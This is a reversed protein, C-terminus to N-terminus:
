MRAFEVFGFLCDHDNGRLGNLKIALAGLHLGVLFAHQEHKEQQALWARAEHVSCRLRDERLCRSSNERDQGADDAAVGSLTEEVDGHLIARWARERDLKQFAWVNVLAYAGQNEIGVAWRTAAVHGRVFTIQCQPEADRDVAGIRCKGQESCLAAAPLHERLARTEYGIPSSSRRESPSRSFASPSIAPLLVRQRPRINLSFSATEPSPLATTSSASNGAEPLAASAAAKSSCRTRDIVNSSDLM